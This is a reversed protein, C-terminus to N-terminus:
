QNLLLLSFFKTYDISTSLSNKPGENKKKLIECRTYRKTFM